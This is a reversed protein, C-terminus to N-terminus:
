YGRRCLRLRAIYLPFLVRFVIRKGGSYPDHCEGYNDCIYVKFKSPKMTRANAQYRVTFLKTKFHNCCDKLPKYEVKM